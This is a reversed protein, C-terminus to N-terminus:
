ILASCEVSVSGRMLRIIDNYGEFCRNSLCHQRLWQCIPEKPNLEPSYLPLKLVSINSFDEAIDETYWGVCDIIVLAYTDSHTAESIQKLHQWM